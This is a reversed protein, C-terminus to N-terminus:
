RQTRTRLRSACGTPRGRVVQEDGVDAQAAEVANVQDLLDAFFRRLRGDDDDRPVVLRQHLELGAAVARSNELLRDLGALEELGHPAAERVHPALPAPRALADEAAEADGGRAPRGRDDVDAVAPEAELNGGVSATGASKSTSTEPRLRWRITSGTQDDARSARRARRRRPARRRRWARPGCRARSRRDGTPRLTLRTTLSLRSERRRLETALSMVRM